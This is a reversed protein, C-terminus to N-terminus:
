CEPRLCLCNLRVAVILRDYPLEFAQQVHDSTPSSAYARHPGILGEEVSIALACGDCTIVRKQTDIAKAASQYFTINPVSRVPEM